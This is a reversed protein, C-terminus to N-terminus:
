SYIKVRDLQFQPLITLVENVSETVSDKMEVQGDTYIKAEM